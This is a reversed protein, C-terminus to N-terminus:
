NAGSYAVGEGNVTTTFYVKSLNDIAFSWADGANLTISQSVSNGVTVSGTNTTLAQVVVYQCAGAGIATPTAALATVSGDLLTSPASSTTPIASQDSAFTVPVSAAMTKQGLTTITGGWEEVNVNSAIVTSGSAPVQVKYAVSTLSTQTSKKKGYIIGNTYDVVYDGNTLSSFVASSLIWQIRKAGSVEDVSEAQDSPFLKETTLATSTFSLSTDLYSGGMTGLQNKINTAGLYGVVLTGAAQGADVQQVGSGDYYYLQVTQGTVSAVSSSQNVENVPLGRFPSAQSQNKM